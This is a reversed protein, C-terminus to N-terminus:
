DLILSFWREILPMLTTTDQLRIRAFRQERDIRNNHCRSIWRKSKSLFSQNVGFGNVEKSDHHFAMERDADQMAENVM